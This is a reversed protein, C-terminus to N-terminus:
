ALYSSLSTECRNWTQGSRVPDRLEFSPCVENRTVTDPMSMERWRSFSITGTQIAAPPSSMSFVIRKNRDDLRPPFSTVLEQANFEQQCIREM